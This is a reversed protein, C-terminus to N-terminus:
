IHILSLKILDRFVGRRIMMAVRLNHPDPPIACDIEREKGKCLVKIKGADSEKLKTIIPTIRGRNIKPYGFKPYNLYAEQLPKQLIKRINSNIDIDDFEIPLKEKQYYISVVIAVLIILGGLIIVYILALLPNIKQILLIYAIILLVAIALSSNNKLIEKIHSLM